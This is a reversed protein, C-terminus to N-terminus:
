LSTLTATRSDVVQNHAEVTTHCDEALVTPAFKRPWKQQQTCIVAVSCKFRLDILTNASSQLQVSLAYILKPTQLLNFQDHQHKWLTTLSKVRLGRQNRNRYLCFISPNAFRPLGVWRKLSKTAQAQLEKCFYHYACTTPKHHAWYPGYWCVFHQHDWLKALASLAATEQKNLLSSQHLMISHNDTSINQCIM